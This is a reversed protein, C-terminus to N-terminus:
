KKKSPRVVANPLAGKFDKPKGGTAIHKHLKYGKKQAM